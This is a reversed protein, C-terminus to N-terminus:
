AGFLVGTGAFQISGGSAITIRKFPFQYNDGIVLKHSLNLPIRDAGLAEQGAIINVMPRIGAMGNILRLWGCFMAKTAAPAYGADFAEQNTLSNSFASGATYFITGDAPNLEVTVIKAQNATGPINATQDTAIRAQVLYPKGMYRYVGGGIVFRMTPPNTPQLLGNDFQSLLTVSQPAPVVNHTYEANSEDDTGDVIYGARKRKRIYIFAGWIMDERRLKGKGSNLAMSVGALDGDEHDLGHVYVMNPVNSVSLPVKISDGEVSGPVPHGLRCPISEAIKDGVSERGMRRLRERDIFIKDTV